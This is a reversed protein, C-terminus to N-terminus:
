TKAAAEAAPKADAAKKAAEQLGPLKATLDKETNQAKSLDTKLKSLAEALMKAQARAAVIAPDGAVKRAAAEDSAKQLAAIKEDVTQGFAPSSLVALTALCVFAFRSSHLSNM